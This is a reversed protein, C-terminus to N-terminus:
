QYFIIRGISTSPMLVHRRSGHSDYSVGVFGDETELVINEDAIDLVTVENVDVVKLEKVQIRM